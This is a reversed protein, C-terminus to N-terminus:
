CVACTLSMRLTDPQNPPAPFAPSATVLAKPSSPHSISAAYALPSAEWIYLLSRRPAPHFLWTVTDAVICAVELRRGYNRHQLWFQLLFSPKSSARQTSLSIQGM